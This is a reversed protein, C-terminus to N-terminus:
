QPHLLLSDRMGDFQHSNQQWYPEMRLAKLTGKSMLKGNDTEEWRLVRHPAQAECVITLQRPITQYALTLTLEKDTTTRTLNAKEAQCPKHRLRLYFAGPLVDQVGQTLKDPDLRLCTWIEDELLMGPLTIDFDGESEFYSFERVRYVGPDRFDGRPVFNTQQFVHGCWDQVTTTTKLTATGDTPTFVSQMLSYDYIGTTFHRVTNLKLIPVRDEGAAQANDLKVQKKSSFDETVFVM